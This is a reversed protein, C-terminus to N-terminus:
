SCIWAPMSTTCDNGNFQNGSGSGDWFVDFPTNGHVTNHQVHVHEPPSGGIGTSDFVSIGNAFPFTAFTGLNELVTNDHLNVHHGGAVVIGAGQLPPAGGGPEPGCAADNHAVWNGAGDWHELPDPNEGSDVFVIGACNGYVTNDRVEGHSSDRLLIGIGEVHTTVNAYAINHVVQANAHPSDGVYFGPAGNDHAIDDEYRVGSLHFGSIGYDGNAAAETSTVESNDAHYLYVGYGPFGRVTFGDIRTRRVARGAPQFQADVGGLVCIGDVTSPDSPDVCPSAHVIGPQLITAGIGAGQLTLNDKTITLNESYVGPDVVIRDGPKAADIAAQISEGPHVHYTAAAATGAVALSFAAFAASVGMRLPRNM